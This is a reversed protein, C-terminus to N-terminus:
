PKREWVQEYDPEGFNRVLHYHAKLYERLPELHAADFRGPRDPFPVDLWVSWLVYRVRRLELSAITERVQEPRTYGSATLFAVRAPNNLELLYYLSCDSAQFVFDGPRTHEEMWKFKDYVDPTTFVERGAPTTLFGQWNTQAILPQAVLAAAGAAWLTRRFVRSAGDSKRALWVLVIMGPLSVACLRLWSPSTSVSVFLCLGVLSLLMLRDWPEAPRTKSLRLWRALFVLYVTPLLLHISLWLAVAAIELPGTFSPVEYLYVQPTNWFWLGFYKGPFLVTSEFFPRFGARAILYAIPVVTTVVFPLWLSTQHKLFQRWGRAKQRYEWFLFLAIGFAAAPGCTQTFMMAVGCLVGALALRLPNRKAIVAALAGMVALLSFWHHTPDAESTFAFGLFLASPLYVLKGELVRRSVLVGTSALSTGLVILVSNAIWARVGVLKILGLYFYQIGPFILEFFDKYIIEGRLMRVADHLFIPSVDGEFIPTNPLVFTALYLWGVTGLLLLTSRTPNWNPKDNM